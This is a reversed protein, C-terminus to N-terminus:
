KRQRLGAEVIEAMKTPDVFEEVHWNLDLIPTERCIFRMAEECSPAEIMAAGAVSGGTAQIEQVNVNGQKVGKLEGLRKLTTVYSSYIQHNGQQAESISFRFQYRAM